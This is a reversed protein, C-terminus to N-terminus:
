YLRNVFITSNAVPETPREVADYPLRYCPLHLRCCKAIRLDYMSGNYDAPIECSWADNEITSKVNSNNIKNKSSLRAVKTM